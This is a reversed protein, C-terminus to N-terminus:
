EDDDFHNFNSVNNRFLVLLEGTLVILDELINGPYIFCV